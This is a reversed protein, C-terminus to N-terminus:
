HVKARTKHVRDVHGSCARLLGQLASIVAM